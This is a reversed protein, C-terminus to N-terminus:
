GLMEGRGGRGGEGPDLSFNKGTLGLSMTGLSPVKLDGVVEVVNLVCFGGFVVDAVQPKM